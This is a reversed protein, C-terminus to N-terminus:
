VCRSRVITTQAAFPLLASVSMEKKLAMPGARAVFISATVLSMGVYGARGDLGDLLRDRVRREDEVAKVDLPEDVTSEVLDASVLNPGDGRGLLSM